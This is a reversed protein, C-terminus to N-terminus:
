AKKARLLKGGATRPLTQVFEVHRPVKYAALERSCFLRVAQESPEAGPKPVVKAALIERGEPSVASHVMAEEVWDIKSIVREVELPSVRFGDVKLIAKIRDIITVFGDASLKGLDGTHLWGDVITRATTEEDGYYGDMLSTGRAVVEGAEGPGAFSGDPRMVKLEIGAIPRGSSGPHSDLEAPPMYSLRACAETQGYMVWPEVGPLIERLKELQPVPLAGGAVTIYRLHPLKEAELRGRSLLTAFFPPVAPIGTVAKEELVRRVVPPFQINRDTVLTGGVRAHTLLVSNGYAFCWPLAALVRDDPRLGLYSLIATTNEYLARHSLAAGKPAGTTGSTYLIMALRPTETEPVARSRSLNRVDEWKPAPDEKGAWLVLLDEEMARATEFVQDVLFLARSGERVDSIEGQRLAPHLPVVTGGALLTGFFWAAYHISNSLHLIVRDGPRIGLELLKAAAGLSLELADGWSWSAHDELLFPRDLGLAAGQLLFRGVHAEPPWSSAPPPVEKEALFALVKEPTSLDRAATEERSIELGLDDRLFWAVRNLDERDLGREWPAPDGPSLPASARNFRFTEQFFDRVFGELRTDIGKM